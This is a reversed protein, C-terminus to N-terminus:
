QCQTETVPPVQAVLILDTCYLTSPGARVGWGFPLKECVVPHGFSPLLDVPHHRVSWDMSCSQVDSDLVQQNAHCRHATSPERLSRGGDLEVAHTCLLIPGGGGVGEWGAVCGGKDHGGCCGKENVV